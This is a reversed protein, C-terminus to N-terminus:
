SVKVTTPPHIGAKEGARLIAQHFVSDFVKSIDLFAAALPKMEEYSHRLIAYLLASAELCGDRQLFAYQLLSFEFQERMWRSLVKHLAHALVSSIALPRFDGPDTPCEVKPLFTVRATALSSPLKETALIIDLLGALSPLHWTLVEQLSLKDMGASTRGMSRLAVEATVPAMVKRKIDNVTQPSASWPEGDNINTVYVKAWYEEVGNVERDLGRYEEGWRGELISNAADKRKLKYLRQTHAYRM